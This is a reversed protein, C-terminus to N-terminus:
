MFFTWINNCLVHIQHTHVVDLKHDFFIPIIIIISANSLFLPIKILFNGHIKFWVHNQVRFWLYRKLIIGPRTIIVFLIFKKFMFDYCTTCTIPIVFLKFKKKIDLYDWDGERIDLDLGREIYLLEKRTNHNFLFSFHSSQNAKYNISIM